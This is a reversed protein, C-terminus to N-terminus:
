HVHMSLAAKNMHLRNEAQLYVVSQAGDMVEPSVEEGRYVPMCHMFLADPKAKQLLADTVQYRLLEAKKHEDNQVCPPFIDTYVIDADRLAEDVDETITVNSFQMGREVIRREPSCDGPCAIAIDMNVKSCGLILSNAVNNGSGLYALKLNELKGKTEWVTFLDSLVQLPHENESLGNLVPLNASASFENLEESSFGRLVAAAIGYREFIAATDRMNEGRALPTKDKPLFICDGSLQRIGLEFSLRTRMSVNDFLLAITKNKLIPPNERVRFKQKMARAAYLYEFIEESSLQALCLLSKHAVKYRPVYKNIDM